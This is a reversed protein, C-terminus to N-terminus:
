NEKESKGVSNKIRIEQTNEDSSGSESFKIEKKSVYAYLNVQESNLRLIPLFDDAIKASSALYIYDKGSDIDEKSAPAGEIYPSDFYEFNDLYGKEYIESLKEPFTENNRAAYMMLAICIKTIRKKEADLPTQPSKRISPMVIFNTFLIALLLSLLTLFLFSKIKKKLRAKEGAPVKM